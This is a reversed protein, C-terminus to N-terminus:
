IDRRPRPKYNALLAKIEEVDDTVLLELDEPNIKGGVLMQERMWDVLGSWYDKGLFVVPFSDIKQTQVLTLAEFIEDMTGFGGPAAIFASAYRVFMVKRAFFYHFHLELDQYPNPEPEFHLDINLGVSLSGAAQAGRNAAEMIGPGGGTIMTWGDRGLAQAVEMSQIYEPHDQPTRASGFFSVAKHVQHMQQFGRELEASMRGIRGQDTTPDRHLEPIDPFAM